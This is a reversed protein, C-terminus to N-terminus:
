TVSIYNTLLSMGLDCTRYFGIVDVSIWLFLVGEIQFGSLTETVYGGTILILDGTDCLGVGIALSINVGGEGM